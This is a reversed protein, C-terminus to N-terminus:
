DARRKSRQRVFQGAPELSDDVGIECYLDHTYDGPPRFVVPRVPLVEGDPGTFKPFVFIASKSNHLLHAPFKIIGGLLSLAKINLVLISNVM